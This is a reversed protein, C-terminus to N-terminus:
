GGESQAASRLAAAWADAPGEGHFASARMLGKQRLPEAMDKPEVLLTLCAAGLARADGPPTLYAAGGAISALHPREFGAIPTGTALAWRFEQGTVTLGSHLFAQAGRYLSALQSWEVSDLIRVSEALNLRTLEEQVQPWAERKLGALVLPIQDGVSADVWSWAALLWSLSRASEGHSLVYAPPLEMAQALSADDKGKTVRFAPDVFPALEMVSDLRDDKLSADQWRYRLTVGAAGAAGMARALRDFFSEAPDAEAPGLELAMPVPSRLPARRGLSWLLDAEARAALRPLHRQDFLLRHWAGAGAAAVQVEDFLDAVVTAPAESFLGVLQELYGARRLAAVREHIVFAAPSEPAEALPAANLALRM